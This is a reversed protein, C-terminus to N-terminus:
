SPSRMPVEPEPEGGSPISAPLCLVIASLITIIRM